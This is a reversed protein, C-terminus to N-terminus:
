FIDKLFIFFFKKKKVNNLFNLSKYILIARKLISKFLFYYKLNKNSKLWKILKIFSNIKVM